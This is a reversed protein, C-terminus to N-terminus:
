RFGYPMTRFQDVGRALRVKVGSCVGGEGRRVGEECGRASLSSVGSASNM